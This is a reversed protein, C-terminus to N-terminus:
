KRRDEKMIVEVISSVGEKPVMIDKLILALDEIERYEATKVV